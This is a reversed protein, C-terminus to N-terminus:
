STKGKIKHKRPNRPLGNPKISKEELYLRLSKLDYDSLPVLSDKIILSDTLHNEFFLSHITDFSICSLDTYVVTDVLTQAKFILENKEDEHCKNCAGQFVEDGHDLISIQFRYLSDNVIETNVYDGNDYYENYILTELSDFHSVVGNLVDSQYLLTAKLAGNDHYIKWIGVRKGDKYNEERKVSGNQHFERYAGNNPRKHQVDRNIFLDAYYSKLYLGAVVLSLFVICVILVLKLGKGM